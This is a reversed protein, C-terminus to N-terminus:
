DALDGVAEVVGSSRLYAELSPRVIPGPVHAAVEARTGRVNLRQFLLTFQEQWAATIAGLSDTSMNWLDAKFPGIANKRTKYYFQEGTMDPKREGGFNRDLHAYM